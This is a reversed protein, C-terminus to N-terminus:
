QEKVELIPRTLVRKLTLFFTKTNDLDKHKKNHLDSEILQLNVMVLKALEKKSLGRYVKQHARTFAEELVGLRDLDRLDGAAYADLFLHIKEHLKSVNLAESNKVELFFRPEEMCVVIKNVLVRCYMRWGLKEAWKEDVM